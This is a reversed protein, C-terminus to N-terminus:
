TPCVDLTSMVEPPCNSIRRDAQLAGYPVCDVINTRVSECRGVYSNTSKRTSCNLCRASDGGVKDAMMQGCRIEDILRSFVLRDADHPEWKAGERGYRERPSESHTMAVMASKRDRRARRCRLM